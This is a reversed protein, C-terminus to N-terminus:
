TVLNFKSAFCNDCQFLNEGTHTKPIVNRDLNRKFFKNCHKCKLVKVIQGMHTKQHNKLGQHIRFRKHCVQCEFPREGTHARKHITLEAKIIFRKDCYECCYIKAAEGM